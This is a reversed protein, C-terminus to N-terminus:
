AIQKGFCVSTPDDVYAGFAAIRRWGCAAYLAQAALQRNGTELCLTTYGSARARRELEALLARAVGGRRASPLVYLRRLEVTDADLPRLAGSAIAAGDRWALLYVGGAPTPANRPLAAEAGGVRYMAQVEQAATALLALAEAGQPDVETIALAKV